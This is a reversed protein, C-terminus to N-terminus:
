MKRLAAIREEIPPHSMFLSAMKKKTFPNAFYLPATAGNANQTPLADNKIKELANALGDPYRTLLAGSADALFERKRSIALQVLKAFIPAFIAFLIGIILIFASARGGGRDNGGWRMRLMIDSLIVVIGVMVAALTMFRVDYNKIHSMEHAIVGELEDRKLKKLAGTTVAIVSHGPNRGTAFANIAEDQVVYVRPKPIGAAIAMEEVENHLQLYQREDAPKAGSVAIVLDDSYYYNGLTLLIALFAAIIVGFGGLGTLYSFLFALALILIFFFGILLYSKRKNSAIQDYM